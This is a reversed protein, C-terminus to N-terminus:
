NQYAKRWKGWIRKVSEKNNPIGKEKPLAKAVISFAPTRRHGYRLRIMDVTQGITRYRPLYLRSGRHDVRTPREFARIARDLLGKTVPDAALNERISKALSEQVCKLTAIAAKFEDERKRRKLGSIKAGSTWSFIEVAVARRAYEIADEDIWDRPVWIAKGGKDWRWNSDTKSDKLSVISQYYPADESVRILKARKKGKPIRHRASHAPGKMSQNRM